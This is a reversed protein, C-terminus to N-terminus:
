VLPFTQCSLFSDLLGTKGVRKDRLQTYMRTRTRAHEQTHTHTHAHAQLNCPVEGRKKSIELETARAIVDPSASRDVFSGPACPLWECQYLEDINKEAHLLTGDYKWVKIENDVQVCCMCVGVYHSFVCVWM